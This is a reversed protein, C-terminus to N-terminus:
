IRACKLHAHLLVFVRPCPTLRPVRGKKKRMSKAGAKRLVCKAMVPGEALHTSAWAPTKSSRRGRQLFLHRTMRNHHHTPPYALSDDVNCDERRRGSVTPLGLPTVM